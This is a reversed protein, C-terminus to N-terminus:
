QRLERQRPRGTWDMKREPQVLEWLPPMGVLLRRLASLRRLVRRSARIQIRACHSQPGRMLDPLNRSKLAMSSEPQRPHISQSKGPPLDQFAEARTEESDQKVAEDAKTLGPPPCIKGRVPLSSPLVFETTQEGFGEASVRPMWPLALITETLEARWQQSTSNHKVTRVKHVGDSTAVM